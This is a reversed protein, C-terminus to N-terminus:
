RRGASLRAWEEAVVVRDDFPLARDGLVQTTEHGKGAVVVVDGETAEALAWAIATRRDAEVEVVGPGRVGSRIEAVIADPDESRPNDSTLVVLDSLRAAVEGMTPRKARDRDGGCGFVVITRAPEAGAVGRAAELVKDLGDPTHAYDVVVSFPAGLEVVEFRGPVGGAEALGGVIDAPEIGLEAAATAAALANSVNFVGGLPVVLRQGRWTGTSARVGVELGTVDDLGYRVTRIRAADALLRGHPDDANVVAVASRGPDFLRAKAAFYDEMSAHFDLHDRSLNTFVAVAFTCGEVRHLVLAHSSVEMAVATVGEHRFAALRAQLEPSDPTTLAGSLTGIVGTPRGAGELVAQLLATTTTKGNTGTVGVVDIARSPHGHFAAAARGMQVRSDPVVVQPVDLDLPRECLLAVAGREVAHAAHDHGDDRQGRVCCFLAGPVVL